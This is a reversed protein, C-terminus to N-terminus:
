PATENTFAPGSPAPLDRSAAVLSVRALMASLPLRERALHWVYAGGDFSAGSYWLTVADSTPDYDITSRYVVDMMEPIAGRSRLPSAYTTWHVGDPSTALYLARTTCDGPAKLPYVAWYENRAPIWEVDLHWAFGDPQDLVVPEASSWHVGDTSHRLEVTTSASTCGASGANVSWMLWDAAGRHVVTPSIIQHNPASAVLEPEGWRVGDSSRILWIRNESTVQRYYVLLERSAPDYLADPDSLYGANPLVIPNALGTPVVWGDGDVGTFFSPNEFSANGFPYPTALLAQTADKWGAPLWVHDPHVAQGSGDYTEVDLAIVGDTAAEDVQAAFQVLANTGSRAFATDRGIRDGVKWRATALGRDNTFEEVPTVVGNTAGWEVPEGRVPRGRGDVLKVALLEPLVRGPAARQGDGSVAQLQITGPGTSGEDTCAGSGLVAVMVALAFM